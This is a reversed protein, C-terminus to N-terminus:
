ASAQGHPIRSPFPVSLHNCYQLFGGFIGDSQHAFACAYAPSCICVIFFLIIFAAQLADFGAMVPNQFIDIHLHDQVAIGGPDDPFPVGMDATGGGSELCARAIDVVFVEGICRRRRHRFIRLRLFDVPIGHRGDGFGAAAQLAIASNGPFIGGHEKGKAHGRFNHVLSIDAIQYLHRM